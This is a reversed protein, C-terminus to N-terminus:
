DEEINAFSGLDYLETQRLGRDVSALAKKNEYLWRERVPVASMPVLCITGDDLVDAHFSTINVPYKNSILNLVKTLTVRNKADLTLSINPMEAVEV